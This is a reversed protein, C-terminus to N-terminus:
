GYKVAFFHRSEKSRVGTSENLQWIDIFKLSQSGRQVIGTHVINLLYNQVNVSEDNFDLTRIM